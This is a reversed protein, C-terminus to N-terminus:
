LCLLLIKMVSFFPLSREKVYISSFQQNLVRMLGNNLGPHAVSRRVISALLSPWKIAIQDFRAVSGVLEAGENEAAPNYSAILPVARRDGPM